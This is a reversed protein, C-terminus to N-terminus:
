GHKRGWAHALRRDICCSEQDNGGDPSNISRIFGSAAGNQFSGPLSTRSELGQPPSRHLRRPPLLLRGAWLLRCCARLAHSAIEDLLLVDSLSPAWVSYAGSRARGHSNANSRLREVCLLSCQCRKPLSPMPRRLLQHFAFHVAVLNGAWPRSPNLHLCCCCIALLLVVTLPPRTASGNTASHTSKWM